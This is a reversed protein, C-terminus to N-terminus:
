VSALPHRHMHPPVCQKIVHYKWSCKRTHSFQKEYLDRKAIVKFSM